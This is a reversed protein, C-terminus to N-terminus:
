ENENKVRKTNDMVHDLFQQAMDGHLHLHQDPKKNPDPPPTDNPRDIPERLKFAIELERTRKGPKNEIDSKLADMLYDRPLYEDVLEKYGVSETLRQPNKAMAESYGAKRMAKSVIMKGSTELQRKLEEVAKKQLNNAM